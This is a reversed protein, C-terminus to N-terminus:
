RLLWSMVEPDARTDDRLWAFSDDLIRAPSAWEKVNAKEPSDFYDKMMDVKGFMVKRSGAAAPPPRTRRLTTRAVIAASALITSGAFALTNSALFQM